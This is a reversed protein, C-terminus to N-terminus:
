KKQIQIQQNMIHYFDKHCNLYDMISEPNMDRQSSIIDQFIYQSLKFDENTDITLRISDNDKFPLQLLKVNFFNHNEYIFNTVHEHYFQDKTLDSIRQLASLKVLEAFFGYHTKITPIGNENQFSIYDANNQKLADVLQLIYKWSLFPNDACVRVITNLDYYIAAEIYRQLVDNESGEYYYIDLDTAIKRLIQDNKNTSTALVIPFAINTKLREIIIELISKEKYFPLLIKNPLRKSGTRAQIVIGIKNM